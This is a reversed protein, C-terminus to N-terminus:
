PTFGGSKCSNVIENVVVVNVGANGDEVLVMVVVVDEM